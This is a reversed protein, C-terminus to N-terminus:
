GDPIYRRILPIRVGMLEEVYKVVVLDEPELSGVLAAIGVTSVAAAAAFPVVVAFTDPAVRAVAFGLPIVVLPVVVFARMSRGNYPSIGFKFKLFVYVAGNLVTASGASAVAAGIFGYAPILVLNMLFNLTFALVNAALIFKTAGLASLTERSRGVAAYTFFGVSLVVLASGAPLYQRGFVTSVVLEPFVVLTAFLPFVLMFVWKTTVEYVREVSEDEDADLRSALPLYMYSFAGLVLTMGRALPYAAGYLGVESSARFYGLMLTDTETLLTAMVTAVVLPASFRTMERGHFSFEGRLPVLRNLLVYTVLTGAVIAVVYGIGTAVVGVGLALLATTLVLRSGPYGVDQTLIKYVTNESGRIAAVGIRFAVSLPISAVFLLFLTPAEASEFLHPVLLPAGAVLGLAVLLSVGVAIVLGTLWAGRLDRTDDFRAMYRPVGQTFGAAGLTTGLVFVSRAINFEGYGGTTLLRGIIVREVLKASAGFVMGVFVLSASSLLKSLDGESVSM